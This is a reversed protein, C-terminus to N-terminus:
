PGRSILDLSELAYDDAWNIGATQNKCPRTLRLQIERRPGFRDLPLDYCRDLDACYVALADVEDPTYSRKVFGNRGRRSSYCRVAIVGRRSVAWKCQACMLRTGLDFILDSRGGEGVPKFVGFGRRVAAYVIATEAIAGKQNTSAM